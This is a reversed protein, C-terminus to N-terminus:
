AFGEPEARNSSILIDDALMAHDLTISRARLMSIFGRLHHRLETVTTSTVLANFRARASPNEDDPPGILSRAAHGLGKGPAFMPETRSQQHVAYLTMATHVATEEWTPSDGAYDPVHVSTLEWIEPLEGPPRNAGKRLAALEGRARAENRRYRGAPRGARENWWHAPGRPPRCEGGAASPLAAPASRATSFRRPQRTYQYGVCDHRHGKRMRITRLAVTKSHLHPVAVNLDRRFFFLAKGVDMRGKGEGRGAFATDPVASALAEQQGWAESRLLRRWQDRARVPDAEDLSALWRPFREDIVQYFSESSHKRAASATDPSGGRARDLNGALNRLASAVQETEEM